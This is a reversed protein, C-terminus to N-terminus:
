CRLSLLNSVVNRISGGLSGEEGRCTGSYIAGGSEYSRM